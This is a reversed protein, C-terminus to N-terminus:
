RRRAEVPRAAWVQLWDIRPAANLHLRVSLRLRVFLTMPVVTTGGMADHLTGGGSPNVLRMPLWLVPITLWFAIKLMARWLLATLGLQGEEGACMCAVSSAPTLTPQHDIKTIVLTIIVTILAPAGFRCTVCMYVYAMFLTCHHM